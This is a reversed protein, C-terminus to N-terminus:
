NPRQNQTSDIKFYFSTINLLIGQQRNCIKDISNVTFSLFTIYTSTPLIRLHDDVM